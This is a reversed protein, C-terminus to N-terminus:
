FNFTNSFTFTYNAIFNWLTAVGVAGIKSLYFNCKMKEHIIWLILTNILLGGVCVLIFNFYETTINQNESYFTWIRNLIYNSSAAILFGISNSIYKNLKLKEKCLYTIGFDVLLGSGGVTCFKIFKLIIENM